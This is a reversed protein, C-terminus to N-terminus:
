VAEYFLAARIGNGSAITGALFATSGHDLLSLQGTAVNWYPATAIHQNTPSYRWCSGVLAFTDIGRPAVPLSVQWDGSGAVGSSVVHLHVFVLKGMAKYRGLQTVHGGTAGSNRLIPTWSTWATRATDLDILNDRIHTNYTAASPQEKALWTRPSTWVM